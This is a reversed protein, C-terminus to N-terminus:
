CGACSVFLARTISHYSSSLSEAFSFEYECANSFVENNEDVLAFSTYPAKQVMWRKDCPTAGTFM